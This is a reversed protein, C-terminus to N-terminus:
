KKKAKFHRDAFDLYRDWDWQTVDHKGARLHYGITVGVPQGPAPQTAVGLGPLGYLAYAPEAAKAALFEGKPDAWRDETASAVYLPRPAALALLMHQDVPLSAVDASYKKYSGAFWHPFARNLDAVTEGYNRRALSAGGEGSDNSVVLAFREDQAAAWLATKGLRSHGTLAIQKPEVWPRMEVWDLIRSLGWAWAGISGWEEPHPKTQGPRYFLPHIGNAFGDDHDPDIDGYYATVVAYGRKVIREIPWRSKAAGRGEESARNNVVGPGADVWSRPLAIGPDPHVTHNGDFNLGVFAPVRGKAEAPRYVLIDVAPGSSRDGFRLTVQERVAKGGLATLDTAVAGANIPVNAQPTRGYVHARFLELIEPRRKTEWAQSDAVRSGDAATLLDPLAYEGVKSEDYNAQPAQAAAFAGALGLSLTIPLLRHGRQM